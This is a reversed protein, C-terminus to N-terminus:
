SYPSGGVLKRPQREGEYAQEVRQVSTILAHLIAGERAMYRADQVITSIKTFIMPLVEKDLGWEKQKLCLVAALKCEFIRLDDNIIDEKLKTIPTVQNLGMFKLMQLIEEIAEDNPIYIEKEETGQSTPIKVMQKLPEETTNDIKVFLPKSVQVWISNGDELSFLAEGRFERRLISLTNASELLLKTLSTLQNTADKLQNPYSYSQSKYQNDKQEEPM